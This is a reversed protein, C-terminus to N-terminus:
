TGVCISSSSSTPRPADLVGLNRTAIQPKVNKTTIHLPHVKQIRRSSDKFTSFTERFNFNLSWGVVVEPSIRPM